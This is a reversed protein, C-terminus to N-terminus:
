NYLISANRRGVELVEEWTSGRVQAVMNAVMGLLGPSSCKRKGLKFYPSDTELLLKDDPLDKLVKKQGESFSDVLGTFGFWTNPFEELWDQILAADGAFCHLHIKQERPVVGKLQYLVQYYTRAHLVLVMSPQLQKLIRNLAKHQHRWSSPNTSYDLGVEGFVTVELFSLCDGFATYDEETYRNAGKPHFGIGISYGQSKLDQAEKRTPYTPPDCFIVVGGVLKVRFDRDPQIKSCLNDVSLFPDDLSRRSRDLHFHSDFAQPLSEEMWSVNIPYTEILEQRDKATLCAFLVLAVRWHLLVAPSNAPSITFTEHTEIGQLQCMIRMCDDQRESVKYHGRGIQHLQNVFTVLGDLNSVTGLLKSELIRLASIRRRILEETPELQDDFIGPLHTAAHTRSVTEECRAVPCFEPGASFRGRSTSHFELSPVFGSDSGVTEVRPTCTVRREVDRPRPAPLRYEGSRSPKQAPSSHRRLSYSSGTHRRKPDRRDPSSYRKGHHRPPSPSRRRNSPLDRLKPVKPSKSRYNRSVGSKGTSRRHERRPSRASRRSSSDETRRSSRDPRRSSSSADATRTKPKVVPDVEPFRIPSRATRRPSSRPRELERGVVTRSDPPRSIIQRKADPCGTVDSLLRDVDCDLIPPSDPRGSSPISLLQEEEEPSVTIDMSDAADEVRRQLNPDTALRIDRSPEMSVKSPQKKQTQVPYINDSIWGATDLQLQDATRAVSRLWQHNGIRRALSAQGALTDLVMPHTAERCLMLQNVIINAKVLEGRSTMERYERILRPVLPTCPEKSAM